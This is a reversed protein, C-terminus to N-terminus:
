VYNFGYANHLETWYNCICEFWKIYFSLRDLAAACLVETLTQMM